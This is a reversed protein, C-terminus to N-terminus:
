RHMQRRRGKGKGERRRDQTCLEGRFPLAGHAQMRNSPSYFSSTMALWLHTKEQACVWLPSLISPLSGPEYCCASPTFIPMQLSFSISVTSPSVSLCSFGALKLCLVSFSHRNIFCRFILFSVCTLTPLHLFINFFLRPPNPRLTQRHSIYRRGAPRSEATWSVAEITEAKLERTKTDADCDSYAPHQLFELSSALHLFSSISLGRLIIPCNPSKNSSM